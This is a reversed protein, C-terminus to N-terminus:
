YEEGDEDFCVFLYVGYVGMCKGCGFWVGILVLDLLDGCGEMYDKKFKFWNFFRKFSEYTADFTKVILGEINEVIFEDM